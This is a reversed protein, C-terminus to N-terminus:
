DAPHSPSRATGARVASRVAAPGATAAALPEARGATRASIDDIQRDLERLGVHLDAVTGRQWEAAFASFLERHVPGLTATPTSSSRPHAYIDVFVAFRPDAVLDSAQLASRTSPLNHLGRALKALARDDMALYKVLSWAEAKHGARAPIGIITGNVYGSGYLEPKADDVPTPATGYDLDPADDALFAIRWEGDLVMGLRGTSFANSPSFEDGASEAFHVLDAYGYWDVLQKQWRLMRAWGPDSGLASRGREDTWRAGFMHGFIELANEYFGIFPNFGVVALSGDAYRRTLKKAAESLQAITSPVKAVGAEALLKRNVFLGYADALLPLAWRHGRYLTYTDSAGMFVSADIGDRKLYGSLDDLGEPESLSGYPDSEFSSIVNPVAPGNLMAVIRDDHMGGVVDIRLGPHAVEYDAVVSKIVELEHGEHGVWFSLTRQASIIDLASEPDVPAGFHAGQAQDCGISSLRRAQEDTEVGEAVTTMKLSHALWVIARVLALEESGTGIGAVFSRDVKVVDVPFRRLYALSSYGTGFEDIAIQVGLQKLQRLRHLMQESGRALDVEAVELTLLEPSLGNRKLAEGVASVFGPHQLHVGSVNVSVGVPAQAPRARQWAQAQRCAERLVHEGLPVVMGTAEALPLFEDPSLMGREPHAWRVMAEMGVVTGGPLLVQPQYHLLFEGREVAGRIDTGLRLRETTAELMTPEFLRYQNKGSSKAAYMALDAARIMEQGSAVGQTNLAIGVSAGIRVPRESLEFPEALAALIRQAVRVALDQDVDELLLAFEDGGLRAATDEPRTTESLRGAVLAILMDGEVHGLTDNVTKFDDLDLFLVSTTGARTRRRGLAHELRDVFLARNPLGTLPDHFAQRTLREQLAHWEGAQSVDPDEAPSGQRVLLTLAATVLLLIAARVLLQTAPEGDVLALCADVVLLAVGVALVLAARTLRPRRRGAPDAYRPPVSV